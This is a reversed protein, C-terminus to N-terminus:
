RLANLCDQLTWLPSAKIKGISNNACYCTVFDDDDDDDDDDVNDSM